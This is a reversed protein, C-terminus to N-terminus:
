VQRGVMTLMVWLVLSMLVWLGDPSETLGGSERPRASGARVPVLDTVPSPPPGVAGAAATILTSTIASRVVGLLLM